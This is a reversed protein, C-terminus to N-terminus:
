LVPLPAFLATLVLIFFSSDMYLFSDFKFFSVYSAACDRVKVSVYLLLTFIVLMLRELREESM